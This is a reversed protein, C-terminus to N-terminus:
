PSCEGAMPTKFFNKVKQSDNYLYLAKMIKIISTEVTMDGCGIAGAELAKKGSEYLSLDIRGHSSSSNIFVMKDKKTAMEILKLWGTTKTPINGAGFGILMIVTIKPNTMLHEFVSPDSGPFIHISLISSDFGPQYLYNKASNLINNKTIEVNLGIEGIEPYNPSFFAGYSTISSKRVRNGRLIKQGFVILVECLNHTSVEVADILNQRADGRLKELPIQAGTLVVPKKLNLLTLSLAAATYVMTDTGHIIVFGDYSEMNENITKALKNWHEMSFNASDENYLVKVDLEAIEMIEPVHSTLENQLNGPTLVQDPEMSVMGFTGGTHLLLIKKM